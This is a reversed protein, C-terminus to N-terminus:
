SERRALDAAVFEEPTLVRIRAPSGFHAGNRTLVVDAGCAEAAALQLADEFDTLDYGVARWVDAHGVTAVTNKTLLDCLFEATREVGRDRRLIYFLNSLTHWAVYFQHGQREGEELALRSGEILGARRLAVDLIVNTDVLVRM